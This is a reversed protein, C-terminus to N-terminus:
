TLVGNEVQKYAYWVALFSIALFALELLKQSNRIVNAVNAIVFGRYMIVIVFCLSIAYSHLAFSSEFVLAVAGLLRTLAAIFTIAVVWNPIRSIYEAYEATIRGEAVLKSWHDPSSLVFTFVVLGAYALGWLLLFVTVAWHILLSSM